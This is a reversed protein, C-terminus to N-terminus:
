NSLEEGSHAVHVNHESLQLLMCLSEAAVNKQSRSKGRQVQHYSRPNVSPEGDTVILSRALSVMFESALTAGASKVDVRGRDQQVLGKGTGVWDGLRRGRPLSGVVSPASVHDSVARALPRPRRIVIGVTVALPRKGNQQRTLVLSSPEGVDAM